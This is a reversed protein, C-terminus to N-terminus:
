CGILSRSSQRHTAPASLLLTHLSCNENLYSVSGTVSVRTVQTKIHTMSGIRLKINFNMVINQSPCAGEWVETVGLSYLSFKFNNLVNINLAVFFCRM